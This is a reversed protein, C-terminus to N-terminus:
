IHILSLYIGNENTEVLQEAKTGYKEFVKRHAAEMRARPIRTLRRALEGTGAFGVSFLAGATAGITTEVTTRKPDLQAQEGLQFATSFVLPTLLTASAGVKLDSAINAKIRKYQLNKGRKLRISNVVGRGLRGWGLPMFLLYPDALIMNVLEAGFVKPNQKIMNGVEKIDINMPGEELLYGFRNLKREAEKYIRSGAQDPNNRIYDLAEQAQKKKTNGTIWQYLSAPLSEERILDIPNRLSQFFGPTKDQVPEKLGDQVGRIPDKLKFEELHFDNHPM